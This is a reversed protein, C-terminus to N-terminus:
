PPAAAIAADLQGPARALDLHLADVPLSCALTLNERLDGFYTALLLRAGRAAARLRPYATRYADRAAPELDLVLCPEDVQVWAAGAAALRSLVEEYVPLLAPLFSLPARSPDKSKSLCLFSVPGLLVPRTPVGLAKAEAHEDLAKTSALRFRTGSELEPVIYHYNTDFWKTMEMAPVGPRGRAMAFLVDLPVLGASPPAFRAPVAGVMAATDLVHDYFSFDNSPIGGADLGLAKQALWAEKRLSRATALLDAESTTGAWRSELAKKLERRAGFRPWGLNTALTM